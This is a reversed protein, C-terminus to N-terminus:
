RPAQPEGQPQVRTLWDRGPEWSSGDWVDHISRLLRVIARRASDPIFPHRTPRTLPVTTAHAAM